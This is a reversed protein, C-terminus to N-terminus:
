IDITKNIIIFIPKNDHENFFRPLGLTNRLWANIMCALLYQTYRDTM